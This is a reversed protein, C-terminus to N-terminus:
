VCVCVGAATHLTYAQQIGRASVHLQQIHRSPQQIPYAATYALPALQICSGVCIAATYAQEAATYLTYLQEAATYALPMCSGVATHRSYVPTYAEEIYSSLQQICCSPQQIHSRDSYGYIYIYIYM